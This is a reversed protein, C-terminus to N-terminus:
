GESEVVYGFPVVENVISCWHLYVPSKENVPEFPERPAFEFGSEEKEHYADWEASTGYGLRDYRTRNEYYDPYKEVFKAIDIKYQEVDKLYQAYKKDAEEIETKAAKQIANWTDRSLTKQFKDSYQPYLMNDYNILRLGTKNSSYNWHRIFEWMIASAQFGTVGGQEVRNMAWLTAIAGAALAHCITGYDHQYDNLLHNIFEPLNELSMDKDKAKEYWQEHVKMEESIVMRKPQVQENM